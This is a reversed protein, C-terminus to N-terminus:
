FNVNNNPEGKRLSDYVRQFEQQSMSSIEKKTMPDLKELPDGVGFSKSGAFGGSNGVNAMAQQADKDTNSNASSRRSSGSASSKRRPVQVVIPSGVMAPVPKVETDYLEKSYKFQTNGSGVNSNKGGYLDPNDHKNKNYVQFSDWFKAM